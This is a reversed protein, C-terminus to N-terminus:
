PEAGGLEIIEIERQSLVRAQSLKTGRDQGAYPVFKNPDSASPKQPQRAPAQPESKAPSQEAKTQESQEKPPSDQHQYKEQEEAPLDSIRQGDPTRRRPFRISPGGSASGPQPPTDHARSPKPDPKSGSGQKAATEPHSSKSSTTDKGSPEGGMPEDSIPKEELKSKDDEVPAAATPKDSKKGSKPKNSDSGAGVDALEQGVRVTEDAKVLVKNLVGGEPSRVDVTVKDTEIQFIAEDMEVSDGEQKLIASITGEEISEGMSPVKISAALCASTTIHQRSGHSIASQAVLPWLGQCSAWTLTELPLPLAHAKNCTSADTGILVLQTRSLAVLRSARRFAM